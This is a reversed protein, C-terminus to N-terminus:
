FFELNKVYQQILFFRDYTALIDLFTSFLETLLSFYSFCSIYWIQVWYTRSIACNNDCFYFVSFLNAIFLSLDNISRIFLYYYMYGQSKIVSKSTVISYFTVTNFTNLVVGSFHVIPYVYVTSIKSLTTCFAGSSQNLTTNLFLNNSM